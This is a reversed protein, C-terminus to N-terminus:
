PCSDGNAAPVGVVPALGAATALAARSRAGPSRCFGLTTLLIGTSFFRSPGGVPSLELECYAASPRRAQWSAPITSGRSVTTLGAFRHHVVLWSPSFPPLSLATAVDPPTTM